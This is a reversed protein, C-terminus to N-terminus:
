VPCATHKVLFSESSSCCNLLFMFKGWTTHASKLVMPSGITTLCKSRKSLGKSINDTVFLIFLKLLPTWMQANVYIYMYILNHRSSSGQLIHSMGHGCLPLPTASWAVRTWKGTCTSMILCWSNMILLKYRSGSALGWIWCVSFRQVRLRLKRLYRCQNENPMGYITLNHCVSMSLVFSVFGTSMYVGTTERNLFLHFRDDM